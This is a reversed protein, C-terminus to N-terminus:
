EQHTLLPSVAILNNDCPSPSIEAESKRKLKEEFIVLRKDKDQLDWFYLLGNWASLKINVFIELCDVILIM